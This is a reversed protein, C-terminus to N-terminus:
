KVCRDCQSTLIKVTRMGRIMAAKDIGMSNAVGSEVHPIYAGVLRQQSNSVGEIFHYSKQFGRTTCSSFSFKLSKLQGSCMCVGDSYFIAYRFVGRKKADIRAITKVLKITIEERLQSSLITNQEERQKKKM